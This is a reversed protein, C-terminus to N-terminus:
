EDRGPPTIRWQWTRVAALAMDRADSMGFHDPRLKFDPKTNSNEPM